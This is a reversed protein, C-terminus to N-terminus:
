PRWLEVEFLIPEPSLERVVVPIRGRLTSPLVPAAGAAGPMCDLSPKPQSNM